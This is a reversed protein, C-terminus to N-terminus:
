QNYNDKKTQQKFLRHTSQVIHVDKACCSLGSSHWDAFALKELYTAIFIIGKNNNSVNAIMSRVSM